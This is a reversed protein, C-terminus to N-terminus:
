GFIVIFYFLVLGLMCSFIKKKMLKKGVGQLFLDKDLLINFIMNLSFVEIM